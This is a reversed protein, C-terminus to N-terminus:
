NFILRKLTVVDNELKRRWVSFILIRKVSREDKFIHLGEKAQKM